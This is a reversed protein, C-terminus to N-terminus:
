LFIRSTSVCPRPLSNGIFNGLPDLELSSTRAVQFDFCFLIFHIFHSKFYDSSHYRRYLERMAIGKYTHNSEINVKDQWDITM